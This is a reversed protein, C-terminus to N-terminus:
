QRKMEEDSFLTVLSVKQLEPDGVQSNHPWLAEVPRSLAPVAQHGERMVLITPFIYNFVFDGGLGSFREM